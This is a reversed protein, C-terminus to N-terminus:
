QNPVKAWLFKKFDTIWVPQHNSGRQFIHFDIPIILLGIYPFIFSMAVLSGVLLCISDLVVPVVPGVPGVLTDPHCVHCFVGKHRAESIVMETTSNFDVMGFLCLFSVRVIESTVKFYSM